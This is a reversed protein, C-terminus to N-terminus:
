SATLRQAMSASRPFAALATGLGVALSAAFHLANLAPDALPDLPATWWWTAFEIGLLAVSFTVIGALAPFLFQMARKM